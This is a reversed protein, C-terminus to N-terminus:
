SKLGGLGLGGDLQSPKVKIWSALHNIKIGSNGEWFLKRILKEFDSVVKEPIAFISLYYTPLSALVSNCLNQRGGRSLNFRKWKNLKKYVRDLGPQWFLKQRPYGGLPLGLYLFPLKEMKCGVKGAMRSLEDDGLNTESLTSKDWNVKQGSCWEFLNIADKLKFLM